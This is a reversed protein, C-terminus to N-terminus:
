AFQAVHFDLSAFRAMASALINLQQQFKLFAGRFPNVVEERIYDPGTRTVAVGIMYDSITYTLFNIEKEKRKELRYLNTFDNLRNPLIQRIVELAESYWQEYNGKFSLPKTDKKLEEFDKLGSQNFEDKNEEVLGVRLRYGQELLKM